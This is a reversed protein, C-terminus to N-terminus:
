RNEKRFRVYEKAGAAFSMQEFYSDVNIEQLTPFNNDSLPDTYDSPFKTFNFISMISWPHLRLLPPNPTTSYENVLHAVPENTALSNAESADQVENWNNIGFFFSVPLPDNNEGLTFLQYFLHRYKMLKINLIEQHSSETVKDYLNLTNELTRSAEVWIVRNNNRDKLLNYVVELGDVINDLYFKSNKTSNENEKHEDSHRISKMVTMSAIFASLLIALAGMLQLKNISNAQADKSTIGLAYLILLLAIFGGFWFIILAMNSLNKTKFATYVYNESLDYLSKAYGDGFHKNLAYLTGGIIIIFTIWFM